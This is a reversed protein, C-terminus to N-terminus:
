SIDINERFKGRPLKIRKVINLRDYFDSKKYVYKRRICHAIFDVM